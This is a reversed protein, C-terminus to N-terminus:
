CEIGVGDRRIGALAVLARESDIIINSGGIDLLINEIEERTDKHLNVFKPIVKYIDDKSKSIKNPLLLLTKMYYMFLNKNEYKFDKLIKEVKDSIYAKIVASDHELMQIIFEEPIVEGYITDLKHLGFSYAKQVPSDIIISHLKKQENLSLSEFVEEAKKNLVTVESEFMILLTSFRSCLESTSRNIIEFLTKIVKSTGRELLEIIQSDSPLKKNIISELVYFIRRSRQNTLTKAHETLTKPLLSELDEYQLSFLISEVFEGMWEPIQPENILVDVLVAVTIQKQTDTLNQIKGAALLLADKVGEPLESKLGYFKNEKCIIHKIFQVFNEGELSILNQQFLELWQDLNDMLLMNATSEPSFLGNTKRFFDMALKHMNKDPCDILALMLDPDFVSAANIKDSLIGMFMKSLPEYPVLCLSILQKYEMNDTFEKSKPSDKLIYYCAKRVQNIQARVAIEAAADLRNDWIEKMFEHRGKIKLLQNNSNWDYRKGWNRWGTPAKEKFDNYLYYKLLLNFQFNGSFKCTYDHETYSTLMHKMAEIFKDQDNRAYSDIARRIYRQFYKLAKQRRSGKLYYTLRPADLFYAIKGIVDSLGYIEAEQIVNKFDILKIKVGDTFPGKNYRKPPESKVYKRKEYDYREYQDMLLGSAAYDRYSSGNLIKDEPIDRGNISILHLDMHNLNKRVWKIRDDKFKPELTNLYLRACRLVGKIYGEKGWEPLSGLITQAEDKLIPNATRSLEMFLGSVLETSGKELLINLVEKSPNKKLLECLLKKRIYINPNSMISIISDKFEMYQGNLGLIEVPNNVPTFGIFNINQNKIRQVYQEHSLSTFYPLTIQHEADLNQFEKVLYEKDAYYGWSYRIGKKYYMKNSIDKANNESDNIIQVVQFTPMHGAKGKFVAYSTYKVEGELVKDNNFNQRGYLIALSPQNSDDYGWIVIKRLPMYGKNWIRKVSSVHSNYKVPINKDKNVGATLNPVECKEETGFISLLKKKIFEFM